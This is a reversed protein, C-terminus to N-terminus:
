LGVWRRVADTDTRKSEPVYAPVLAKLSDESVGSGYEIFYQQAALTALEGDQLSFM